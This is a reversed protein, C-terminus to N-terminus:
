WLRKGCINYIHVWIFYKAVEKCPAVFVTLNTSITGLITPLAVKQAWRFAIIGHLKFFFTKPTKDITTCGYEFKERQRWIAGSCFILNWVAFRGIKQAPIITIKQVVHIPLSYHLTPNLTGGFVNYTMDPVIKVPWIVWGVTDLVLPWCKTLAGPLPGIGGAVLGLGRCPLTFYTYNKFFM